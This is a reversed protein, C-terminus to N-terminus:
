FVADLFTKTVFRRARNKFAIQGSDPRSVLSILQFAFLFNMRKRGRV